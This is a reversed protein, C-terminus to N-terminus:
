TAISTPKGAPVRRGIEIALVMPFLLDLLAFVIAPGLYDPNGGL